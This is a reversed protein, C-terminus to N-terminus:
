NFRKLLASEVVDVPKKSRLRHQLLLLLRPKALSM